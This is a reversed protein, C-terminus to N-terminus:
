ISCDLVALGRERQAYDLLNRDATALRLDYRLATAVLMRDAPDRTPIDLETSRILVERDLQIVGLGPTKGAKKLWARTSPALGLQKKGAKLALEWFSVDSVALSNREGLREIEAWASAPMRGRDETVMWLWVHTDLLLAQM